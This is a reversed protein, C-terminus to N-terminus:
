LRKTPQLHVIKITDPTQNVLQELSSKTNPHHWKPAIELFPILVFKRKEMFVHPITLESSHIQWKEFAIIDLDIVRPGWKISRERGMEEEITLLQQLLQFPYLTTQVEIVTNLFADQNTLGWAETEYISSARLIKGVKKEIMQYAREIQEFRLGQNTGVGIYTTFLKEQSNIM